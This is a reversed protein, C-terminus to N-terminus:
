LFSLEDNGNELASIKTLPALNIYCEMSAVVQGEATVM